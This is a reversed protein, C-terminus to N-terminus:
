VAAKTGKIFKHGYRVNYHRSFFYFSTYRLSKDFLHVTFITCRVPDFHTSMKESHANRNKNRKWSIKTGNFLRQTLPIETAIVLYDCITSRDVVLNQIGKYFLCSLGSLQSQQMASAHQQKGSGYKQTYNARFSNKISLSFTSIKM